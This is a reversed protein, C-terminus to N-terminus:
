MRLDLKKQKPKIKDFIMQIPKAAKTWQMKFEVRVAEIMDDRDEKKMKLREVIGLPVDKRAILAAIIEEEKQKVGKLTSTFNRVVTPMEKLEDGLFDLSAVIRRLQILLMFLDKLDKGEIKDIKDEFEGLLKQHFHVRTERKIGDGCAAYLKQFKYASEKSFLSGAGFILPSYLKERELYQRYFNKDVYELNKIREEDLKEQNQEKRFLRQFGCSIRLRECAFYAKERVTQLPHFTAMAFLCSFLNEIQESKVKKSDALGSLLANETAVMESSRMFLEPNECLAALRRRLDPSNKVGQGAMFVLQGIHEQVFPDAKINAERDDVYKKLTSIIQEPNNKLSKLRTDTACIPFIDGAPLEPLKQPLARKAVQPVKPPHVKTKTVGQPMPTSSKKMVPVKALVLPPDERMIANAGIVRADPLPALRLPAMKPAKEHLAHMAYRIEGNRLLHSEITQLTYYLANEDGTRKKVKLEAIKEKLIRRRSKQQFRPLQTHWDIRELCINPELNKNVIDEFNQPMGFLTKLERNVFDGALTLPVKEKQVEERFRRKTKGLIAPARLEGEYKTKPNQLEKYTVKEIDPNKGDEGISMYKFLIPNCQEGHIPGTALQLSTVYKYPTHSLKLGSVGRSEVGCPVSLHHNAEMVFKKFAALDKNTAAIDKGQPPIFPRNMEQAFMEQAIRLNRAMGTRESGSKCEAHYPLSLGDFVMGRYLQMDAKHLEEEQSPLSSFKEDIQKPPMRQFTVAFLAYLTNYEPLNKQFAVHLRNLMWQALAKYYGDFAAKDINKFFGISGKSKLLVRFAAEFDFLGNPLILPEQTYKGCAEALAKSAEKLEKTIPARMMAIYRSFLEGNAIFNCMLSSSRGPIDLVNGFLRIGRVFSSFIEHTLIPRKLIVTIEQGDKKRAKVEYGHPDWEALSHLIGSIYPREGKIRAFDMFTTMALQFEYKGDIKRFGRPTDCSLQQELSFLAVEKLRDLTNSKGSTTM